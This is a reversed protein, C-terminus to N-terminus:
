PVPHYLGALSDEGLHLIGDKVVLCLGVRELSICIKVAKKRAFKVDEPEPSPSGSFRNQYWSVMVQGLKLALASMWSLKVWTDHSIVGRVELTPIYKDVPGTTLLHRLQGTAADKVYLEGWGRLFLKDKTYNELPEPDPLSAMLQLEEESFPKTIDHEPLVDGPPLGAPSSNLETVTLPSNAATTM